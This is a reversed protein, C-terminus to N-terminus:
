MIGKGNGGNLYRYSTCCHLTVTAKKICVFLSITM